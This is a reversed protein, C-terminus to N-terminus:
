RMRGDFDAHIQKFGHRTKLDLQSSHVVDLTLRTLSRVFLVNPLGHRSPSLHIRPLRSVRSLSTYSSLRETLFLYVECSLVGPIVTTADYKQDRKVTENKKKRELRKQLGRERGKEQAIANRVGLAILADYREESIIRHGPIVLTNAIDDFWEHPAINFHTLDPPTSHIHRLRVPDSSCDWEVFKEEFGLINFAAAFENYGLVHHMLQRAENVGGTRHTELSFLRPPHVHGIFGLLNKPPNYDPITITFENHTIRKISFFNPDGTETPAPSPANEMQTDADAM